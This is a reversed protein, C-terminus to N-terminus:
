ESRAVGRVIRCFAQLAPSRDERRRVLWFRFLLNPAYLPRMALGSWGDCDMFSRFTLSLGVGSAILPAIMDRSVAEPVYSTFPLEFGASRCAAVVRDFVAPNTRREWRIIRESALESIPVRKVAAFRHDDPVIVSVPESSLQDSILLPGLAMAEDAPWFIFAADLRQDAIAAIRTEASVEHIEVNFKPWRRRFAKLVSSGLVWNGHKPFGLRVCNLDLGAARRAEIRARGALSVIQRADELLAAGSETLVLGKSTRDFLRVGLNLEFQAILRSANQQTMHLRSAARTLNAEEAAAVFVSLHKQDMRLAVVFQQPM